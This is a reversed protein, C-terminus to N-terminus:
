SGNKTYDHSVKEFKKQQPIILLNIFFKIYMINM